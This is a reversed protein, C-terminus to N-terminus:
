TEVGTKRGFPIEATVLSAVFSLFTDDPYRARQMEDTLRRLRPRRLTVLKSDLQVSIVCSAAGDRIPMTNVIGDFVEVVDSVGVAGQLVRARRGQFPEALALAIMASDIGSLTVTMDRASLDGTEQVDSFSLLMGSGTYTQGDIVLNGHGTWLRVAGSDFLIEVALYPQALPQLLAALLPAPIVRSM